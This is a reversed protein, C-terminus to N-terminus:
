LFLHFFVVQLSRTIHKFLYLKDVYSIKVLSPNASSSIIPHYSFIYISFVKIFINSSLFSNLFIIWKSSGIYNEKQNQLRNWTELYWIDSKHWPPKWILYWCISHCMLSILWYQVKMKHQCVRWFLIDVLQYILRIAQYKSCRYIKFVQPAVIKTTSTLQLYSAAQIMIRQTTDACFFLLADRDWYVM